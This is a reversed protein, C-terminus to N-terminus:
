EQSSTGWHAPHVVTRVVREHADTHRDLSRVYWPDALAPLEDLSVCVCPRSVCVREVRETELFFNEVSEQLMDWSAVLRHMRPTSTPIGPPYAEFFVEVVADTLAIWDFPYQERIRPYIVAMGKRIRDYEVVSVTSESSSRHRWACWMVRTHPHLALYKEWRSKVGLFTSHCYEPMKWKVIQEWSLQHSHRTWAVPLEGRRHLRELAKAMEVSSMTTVV